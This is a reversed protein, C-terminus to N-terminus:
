EFTFPCVIAAGVYDCGDVLGPGGDCVGELECCATVTGPETDSSSTDDTSGDDTTTASPLECVLDVCELSGLIPLGTCLAEQTEVGLQDGFDACADLGQWDVCLLEAGDGCWCCWPVLPDGTETDGTSEAAEDSTDSTAEDDLEIQTPVCAVLLLLATLVAFRSPM